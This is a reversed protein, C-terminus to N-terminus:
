TSPGHEVRTEIKMTVETVVQIVANNQSGEGLKAGLWGWKYKGNLIYQSLQKLFTNDRAAPTLVSFEYVEKCREM